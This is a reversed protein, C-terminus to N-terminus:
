DFFVTATAYQPTLYVTSAAIRRADDYCAVEVKDAYVRFGYKDYYIIRYRQLGMDM